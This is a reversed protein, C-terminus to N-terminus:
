TLIGLLGCLVKLTLNFYVSWHTLDLSLDELDTWPWILARWYTQAITSVFQNTLDEHQGVPSCNQGKDSFNVRSRIKPQGKLTGPYYFWAINQGKLLSMKSNKAEGLQIMLKERSVVRNIFVVVIKKDPLNINASPLNFHIHFVKVCTPILIKRWEQFLFGLWTGVIIVLILMRKIHVKYALNLQQHM